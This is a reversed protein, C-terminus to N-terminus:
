VCLEADIGFVSVTTGSSEDVWPDGVLVGVCGDVWGGVWGSVMLQTVACARISAHGDETGSLQYAVSRFLCNGDRGVDRLRYGRARLGDCLVEM